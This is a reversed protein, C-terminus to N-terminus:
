LKLRLIQGDGDPRISGDALRALTHQFCQGCLDLLLHAPEVRLTAGIHQMRVPLHRGLVLGQNLGNGRLDQLGLVPELGELQAVRGPAHRLHLERGGLGHLGDGAGDHGLDLVHVGLVERAGGPRKGGRSDLMVFEHILDGPFNHCLDIVKAVLVQRVSRPGKGLKANGIGHHHPGYALFHDCHHPVEDGLVQCVGGPGERRKAQRVAVEHILDEHLDDRLHVVKGRLVESVCSPRKCLEAEPVLPEHLRQRMRRHALDTVEVRLPQGVQGPGKRDEAEPALPERRGHEPRRQLLEPAAVEAHLLEGVHRPGPVHGAVLCPELGEQASGHFAEQLDLAERVGRGARVHGVDGPEPRAAARAAGPKVLLEALAEVTRHDLRKPLAGVGLVGLIKGLSYILKLCSDLLSPEGVKAKDIGPLGKTLKAEADSVLVARGRPDLLGAAQCPRMQLLPAYRASLVDDHDERILDPVMPPRQGLLQLHYGAAPSLTNM